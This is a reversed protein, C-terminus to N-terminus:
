RRYCNTIRCPTSTQLRMTCQRLAGRKANEKGVREVWGSARTSRATCHWVSRDSKVKQKRKKVKVKTKQLFRSLVWGKNKLYSWSGSTKNVCVKKNKSLREKRISRTTPRSRVNISSANTYYYECSSTSSTKVPYPQYTRPAVVQRAVPKRKVKAYFRYKNYLLMGTIRLEEGRYGLETHFYHRKKEEFLESAQDRPIDLYATHVIKLEPFLSYVEKKWHVTLLMRETDADYSKMTVSGFSHKEDGNQSSFSVKEDLNKIKSNRRKLFDPTSEFTGQKMKKINEIDVLIDDEKLDVSAIDNEQIKTRDQKQLSAGSMKQQYQNLLNEAKLASSLSICLILAYVIKKGMM